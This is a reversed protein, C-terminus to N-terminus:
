EACLGGVLWMEGNDQTETKYLKEAYKNDLEYLKIAAKQRAAFSKERAKRLRRLAVFDASTVAERPNSMRNTIEVLQYQIQADNKDVDDYHQAAAILKNKVADSLSDAPVFSHRPGSMRLDTHQVIARTIYQQPTLTPVAIFIRRNEHSDHPKSDFTPAKVTKTETNRFKVALAAGWKNAHTDILEEAENHSKCVQDLFEISGDLTSWTGNYADTGYEIEMEHRRNKYAERIEERTLKGDFPECYLVAGM